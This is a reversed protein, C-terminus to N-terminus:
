LLLGATRKQTTVTTSVQRGLHLHSVYQLYPNASPPPPVPTLICGAGSRLLGIISRPVPRRPVRQMAQWGTRPQDVYTLQAIYSIGMAPIMKQWGQWSAMCTMCRHDSRQKWWSWRMRKSEDVWFTVCGRITFGEPLDSAPCIMCALMHHMHRANHQSWNCVWRPLMRGMIAAEDTGQSLMITYGDICSLPNIIAAIPCSYNLLLSFWMVATQLKTQSILQKQLNM